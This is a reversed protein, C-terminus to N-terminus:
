NKSSQEFRQLLVNDIKNAVKIVDSNKLKSKLAINKLRALREFREEIMKIIVLSIEIRSLSKMEEELEKPIKFTLEM